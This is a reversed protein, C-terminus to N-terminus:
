QRLANSSALYDSVEGAPMPRSFLYGQMVDCGMGQLSELHETREVGEAVLDLRLGRAIGIMAAVISSSASRLGLDQVFSQDIKIANIPLTQLYGLSSYRTGFDDIAIRVGEARLRSARKSVADMDEILLSETIELELRRAPLGSKELAGTVMQLFNGFKFQAPSINVALAIEDPWAVADLCAQQLM